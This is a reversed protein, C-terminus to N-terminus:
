IYVEYLHRTQPTIYTRNAIRRGKNTLIHLIGQMALLDYKPDLQQRSPKILKHKMLIKFLKQSISTTNNIEGYINVTTERLIVKYSHNNIKRKFIYAKSNYATERNNMSKLIPLIQKIKKSM